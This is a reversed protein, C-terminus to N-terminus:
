PFNVLEPRAAAQPSAGGLAPYDIYGREDGGCFTERDPTNLAAGRRFREALDPNALDNSGFSFLDAAGAAITANARERDDGGKAMAMGSVVLVLM